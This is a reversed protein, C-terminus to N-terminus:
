IESLLRDIRKNSEEIREQAIEGNIVLKYIIDIIDEAKDDGLQNCYMVLDVGSNISLKLAEENSYHEKIAGMQLDDGIIVGDYGLKERLLKTNTNYSLTAPYKDDLNKNFVHATMIMKTKYLLKKYPELELESWTTTADVFGEHSDGKASGHGPFHKLCSIVKHNALEDMFIEAYKSVTEADDGYARDLKYIVDSEKNLGLDVLPAFDVNVGLNQLESAISTYHKRSTEEGLSALGKASLTKSFGDEQKLRAIRGGEQDISILLKEKNINQLETTLKKLQAPNKINKAKERDNYFKDFLIVGGVKYEKICKYIYDEKDAKLTDFGVILMKAIKNKLELEITDM